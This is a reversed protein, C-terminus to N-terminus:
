LKRRALPKIAIGDITTENQVERYEVIVRDTNKIHFERM